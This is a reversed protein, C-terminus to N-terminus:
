CMVSQAHNMGDCRLSRLALAEGEVGAIIHIIADIKMIMEMNLQCGPVAM